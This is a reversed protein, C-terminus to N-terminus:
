YLEFALIIVGVVALLIGTVKRFTIDGKSPENGIDTSFHFAVHKPFLFRLIGLVLIIIAKYM